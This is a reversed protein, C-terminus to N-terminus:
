WLYKEEYNSLPSCQFLSNQKFMQRDIRGKAHLTLFPAWNLKKLEIDFDM